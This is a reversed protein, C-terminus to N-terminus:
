RERRVVKHGELGGRTRLPQLRDVAVDPMPLLSSPLRLRILSGEDGTNGESLFLYILVAVVQTPCNTM